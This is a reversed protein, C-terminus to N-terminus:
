LSVISSSFIRRASKLPWYRGAGKEVWDHAAAPQPETAAPFLAGQDFELYKYAAALLDVSGTKYEVTM